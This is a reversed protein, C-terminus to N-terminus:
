RRAVGLAELRDWLEANVQFAGVDPDDEASFVFTARDRALTDNETADESPAYWLEAEPHRSLLARALPYQEPGILVLVRPVGPLRKALRRAVRDLLMSSPTRKAPEVALVGPARRLDEARRAFRVQELVGDLLLLCLPRGAAPDALPRRWNGAPPM